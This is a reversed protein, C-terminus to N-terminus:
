KIMKKLTGMLEDVVNYEKNELDKVVCTRIHDELLVRSVSNLASKVATIQVLIDDCNKDLTVMKTVGRVQGEIRNLRNILIKNIEEKSSCTLEKKIEVKKKM